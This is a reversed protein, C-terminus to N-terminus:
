KFAFYKLELSKVDLQRWCYHTDPEYDLRNILGHDPLMFIDVLFDEKYFDEFVNNEIDYHYKDLKEQM